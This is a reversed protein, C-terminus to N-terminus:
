DTAVRCDHDSLPSRQTAHSAIVEGFLVNAQECLRREIVCVFAIVIFLVM